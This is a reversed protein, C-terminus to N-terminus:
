ERVVASRLDSYSKRTLDEERIDFAGRLQDLLTAFRGPDDGEDDAV